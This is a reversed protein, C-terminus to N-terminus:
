MEAPVRLSVEFEDGVVFGLLPGKIGFDHRDIVMTGEFVGTSGSQRFTFLFSVEKEVGHLTLTGTTRYGDDTSEVRSSSYKIEPYQEVDFWSDGRAHKDKTKNGTDITRADVAVDFRAQELSDSDFVITGTLGRFTGEAGSGSFRVEYDDTINWITKTLPIGVFLLIAVLLYALHSLTLM